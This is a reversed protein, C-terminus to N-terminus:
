SQWLIVLISDPKGLRCSGQLLGFSRLLSGFVHHRCDTVCAIDHTAQDTAQAKPIFHRVATCLAMADELLLIKCPKNGKLDLWVTSQCSTYVHSLLGAAGTSGTFAILEM